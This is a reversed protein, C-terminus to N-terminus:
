HRSQAFAIFTSQSM